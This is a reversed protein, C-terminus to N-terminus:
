FEVGADQRNHCDGAYWPPLLVATVRRVTTQPPRATPEPRIERPRAFVPPAM